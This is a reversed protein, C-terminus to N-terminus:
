PRAGGTRPLLIEKMDGSLQSIVDDVEGPSVCTALATGAERVLRRAAEADVGLIEAM